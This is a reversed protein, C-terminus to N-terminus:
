IDKQIVIQLRTPQPLLKNFLKDILKWVKFPLYKLLIYSRAKILYKNSFKKYSWTIGEQPIIKQINNENFSHLHAFRPTPKNCHTCLNYEIIEDYPTTIILKGNNKLVKLLHSIFTDPIAVHEIIESAIICDISGEKIPLHYVDATLGAHNKHQMEKVSNIPNSSSIDMSIVKKGLPVLKKSVWGGGCGVDLITTMEKSVEAVISEHLRTLENKSVNPVNKEFYNFSVTDKQYHDRYKFETELTKHLSSQAIYYSEDVLIQPVSEIIPYTNNSTGDSLTNAKNNFILPKKTLPDTLLNNLFSHTM